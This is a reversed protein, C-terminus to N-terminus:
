ESPFGRKNSHKKLHKWVSLTLVSWTKGEKFAEISRNKILLRIRKIDLGFNKHVGKIPLCPPLDKVRTEIPEAIEM